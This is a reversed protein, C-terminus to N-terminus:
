KTEAKQEVAFWNVAQGGQEATAMAANEGLTTVRINRSGLTANLAVNIVATATTSSTVAFSMVTVGAGFDIASVGQQFHTGKGTLLVSVNQTGPSVRNPSVTQVFPEGTSGVVFVTTPTGSDQGKSPGAIEGLTTVRAVHQGITATTAINLVATASTPSDIQLSTVTIGNGFDAASVAQQFHTNEGTLAVSVGQAGPLVSNPTIAPLWPSGKQGVVFTTAAKTTAQGASLGVIENQTTVTVDHAGLVATAAVNLIATATTPSTVKLATVSVGSGFDAKSVGAQFHTRDGTLTVAVNQAGPLVSQPSVGAIAASPTPNTGTAGAAGAAGGSSAGTGSAVGAAGGTPTAKLVNVPAGGGAAPNSAGATAAAGGAMGGVSGTGSGPIAAGGAPGSSSASGAAGSAAGGAAGTGATAGSASGKTFNWTCNAPENGGGPREPISTGGVMTVGSGAVTANDPSDEIVPLIWEGTSSPLNTQAPAAGTTSIQRTGVIGNPSYLPAHYTKVVLRKDSSRVFIVMPASMPAVSTKWTSALVRSPAPTRQATGQGSVSWTTPYIALGGPGTLKSPEGTLKWTQTEQHAYGDTQVSLTCVVQGSWSVEPSQALAASSLVLPLCAIGVVLKSRKALSRLRSPLNTSKM